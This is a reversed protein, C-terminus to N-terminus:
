VSRDDKAERRAVSQEPIEFITERKGPLFTNTM